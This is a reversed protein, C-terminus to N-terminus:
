WIRRCVRSAKTDKATRGRMTGSSAWPWGWLIIGRLKPTHQLLSFGCAGVDCAEMFVWLVYTPSTGFVDKSVQPMLIGYFFM